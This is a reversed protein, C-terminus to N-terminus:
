LWDEKADMWDEQEAGEHHVLANANPSTEEGPMSDPEGHASGNPTNANPDGPPREIAGPEGPIAEPEARMTQTHVKPDPDQPHQRSLDAKAVVIQAQTVGEEALLYGEGELDAAHTTDTPSTEPQVTAGSLEEATPM